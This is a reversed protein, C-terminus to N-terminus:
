RANFTFDQMVYQPVPQGMLQAPKFKMKLLADRAAAAFAPHAKGILRISWPQARGADSIVFALRVKGAIGTGRLTWPYILDPEDDRQAPRDVQPELWTGMVDPKERGVHGLEYPVAGTNPKGRLAGLLAAFQTSALHLEFPWAGNTGSLVYGATSDGGVRTIRFVTLDFRKTTDSSTELVASTFRRGGATDAANSSEIPATAPAALHEATSAWEALPTATKFAELFTGSPTLVEVTAAADNVEVHVEGSDLRVRLQWQRISPQALAAALLSEASPTTDPRQAELAMPHAITSALLAAAAFKNSIRM